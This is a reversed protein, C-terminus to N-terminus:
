GRPIGIKNRLIQFYRRALGSARAAQSVNGGHAALVREVYRREFDEIMRQRAISLPLNAALIAEAYDGPM